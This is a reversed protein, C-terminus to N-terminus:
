ELTWFFLFKMSWDYLGLPKAEDRLFHHTLSSQLDGEMVPGAGMAMAEANNLATM